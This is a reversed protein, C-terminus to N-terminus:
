ETLPFTVNSQTEDFVISICFPVDNICFPVDNACQVCFTKGHLSSQYELDNVRAHPSFVCKVWVTGSSVINLMITRAISTISCCRIDYLHKPSTNYFTFGDSSLFNVLQSKRLTWNLYMIDTCYDHIIM